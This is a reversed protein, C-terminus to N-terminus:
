SSQRSSRRCVISDPNARTMKDARSRGHAFSLSDLLPRHLAWHWSGTFALGSNASAGAVRVPRGHARPLATTPAQWIRRPSKCTSCPSAHESQNKAEIIQQAEDRNTTKLSTRKGTTKDVCYFMGVQHGRYILRYRTTMNNICGCSYSLGNGLM